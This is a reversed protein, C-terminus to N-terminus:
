NGHTKQGREGIKGAIFRIKRLYYDFLVGIIQLNNCKYPKSLKAQEFIYNPDISINDIRSMVADYSLKSYNVYEQDSMNIVREIFPVVSKGPEDSLNYEISDPLFGYVECTYSYHRTPISIVGNKAGETMGGAVSINIHSKDFYYALDDPKIFGLLHVDKKYKEPLNNIRKELEYRSPGDGIYFLSVGDYHIKIAEFADVLGVMYGKHPFEMRGVSIINFKDKREKAKDEVIKIPFDRPYVVEKLMRKNDDILALDYRAQISERHHPSFYLLQGYKDCYKYIKSANNAVIKRIAGTYEEEPFLLSGKFHPICFMTAVNKNNKAWIQARIHDYLNFSLITYRFDDIFKIRKTKAWYMSHVNVYHREVLSDNFIDEYQKAIKADPDCLWIIKCGTKLQVKTLQYIYNEIGGILMNRYNIILIKNKKM